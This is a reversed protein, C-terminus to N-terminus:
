QPGFTSHKPKGIVGNWVSREVKIEIGDYDKWRLGWLESKRLGTWAATLVVTRAPESLRALMTKIEDMTYAHTEEESEPAPPVSVDKVPNVGDLIGLRKAQKFTGSLFAKCHKLSSRGLNTQEAIKPSCKSAM